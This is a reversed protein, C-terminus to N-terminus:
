DPQEGRGGPHVAAAPGTGTRAVALAAASGHRRDQRQAPEGAAPLAARVRQAALRPAPGARARRPRRAPEADGAHLVPLQRARKGQRPVDRHRRPAAAGRRTRGTQPFSQHAISGTVVHEQGGLMVPEGLRQAVCAAITAPMTEGLPEDLLLVFEDGGLRAVTDSARVCQKLHAAVMRLLNDGSAHGLTDNINKFKDLDIFMVALRDGHREARRIAHTLRDLFLARNPLGTLLDHTAQHEIAMEHLRRETIDHAVNMVSAADNFRIACGFFEVDVLSGDLRAVRLARRPQKQAAALNGFIGQAMQARFDEPIRALAETGLLQEPASAGFLRQAAPNMFVIKGGSHIWIADPMLEVLTRYRSESEQRHANLQRQNLILNIDYLERSKKELLSEAEKRAARERALSRSAVTSALQDMM